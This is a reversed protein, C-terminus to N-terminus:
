RDMGCREREVARLFLPFDPMFVFRRRLTPREQEDRRSDSGDMEGALEKETHAV